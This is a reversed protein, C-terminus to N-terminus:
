IGCPESSVIIDSNERDITAVPHQLEIETEKIIILRKDDIKVCYGYKECLERAFALDTKDKQDIRRFTVKPSIKGFFELGNRSAIDRLIRELSANEWATTRKQQVAVDKFFASLAKVTLQDPPGNLEIEEIQFSGIDLLKETEDYIGIKIKIVDGKEPFWENKWKHDRDDFTLQIEDNKAHLHDSYNLSILYLSIDKTVNKGKWIVEYLPERIKKEM